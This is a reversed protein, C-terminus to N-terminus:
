AAALSNPLQAGIFKLIHKKILERAERFEQLQDAESGEAKAPDPVSYHSIKQAKIFTPIKGNLDDCVTIVHDFELTSLEEVTKSFHNSIDINDEGMIEVALPHLGHKEIGASVIYIEGSAYFRFYAEAMQSRCSNGICLVLVKKM